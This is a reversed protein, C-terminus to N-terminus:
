TRTASPSELTSNNVQQQQQQPAPQQQQQPPPQNIMDMGTGMNSTM